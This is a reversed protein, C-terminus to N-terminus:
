GLAKLWSRVRAAQSAQPALELFKVYNKRADAKKNEKQAAIGAGLYGDALDPYAKIASQFAALAERNKKARLAVNGWNLYLRAEHFDKKNAENYARMAGAYDGGSGAVNGQVFLARGYSPNRQLVDRVTQAAESIRGEVLQAEAISILCQKQTPNAREGDRAVLMAQRYDGKEILLESAEGFLAAKQNDDKAANAEKIKAAIRLNLPTNAEITSIKKEKCAIAFVLVSVIFIRKDM